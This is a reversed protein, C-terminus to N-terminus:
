EKDCLDIIFRIAMTAIQIAEKRMNDKDILHPKKKVENWLEDLEELIVAYGEHFSNFKSYKLTANFLENTINDLINDINYIM